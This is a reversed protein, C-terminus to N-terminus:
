RSLHSEPMLGKLSVDDQAFRYPCVYQVATSNCFIRREAIEWVLHDDRYAQLAYITQPSFTFRWRPGGDTNYAELLLNAEPDTGLVYSFIAGDIIGREVDAYRHVPQRLLRLPQRVTTKWGHDDMIKFEEAIQRMQIVRLAPTPAPLRADTLDQFKMEIPPASWITREERRIELPAGSTNYFEHVVNSASQPSLTALVDPRGGRSFAVLIGDKSSSLPNQYRLLPTAVLPSDENAEGLVHVQFRQMATIMFEFRKAAKDADAVTDINERLETTGTSPEVLEVLDDAALQACAALALLTGLAFCSPPMTHSEREALVAPQNASQEEFM